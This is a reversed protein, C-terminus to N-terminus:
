HHSRGYNNRWNKLVSLFNEIQKESHVASVTVRVIFKEMKVPYNVSPAIIYNEELYASLARATQEEKFCVPVIPTSEGSTEFGLEKVGTRLLGANKLLVDRLRPNNKIMKLSSCSAAVVPSPLSTSASYFASRSRVQQIFEETGSLFGGYSGLAKSMTESQYIGPIGDLNFYEPTGRGNVGLVGTAHADDVVIIANYKKGLSYIQDLPAIEGTLAFIGDTIILARQNENKKLLKELHNADCHNYFIIEKMGTPIGDIISAHAMSDALIVFYRDKLNELLLKNGMYGSAFVMAAEQGKFEALLQELELHIDSTGTTQRSASFSVGYKKLADVANNVVEPHNALGLYNNGAFYSYQKNNLSIYSGVGSNLTIM